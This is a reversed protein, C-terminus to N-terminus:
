DGIGDIKQEIKEHEGKIFETIKDRKNIFTEKNEKTPNDVMRKIDPILAFASAVSLKGLFDKQKTQELLQLDEYSFRIGNLNFKFRKDANLNIDVSVDERQKAEEDLEQAEKLKISWEIIKKDNGKETFEKLKEKCEYVRKDTERRGKSSANVTMVAGFHSNLWFNVWEVKSRLSHTGRQGNTDSVTAYLPQYAM